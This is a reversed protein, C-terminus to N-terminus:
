PSKRFYSRVNSEHFSTGLCFCSCDAGTFIKPVGHNRRRFIHSLHLRKSLIRVRMVQEHLSIATALDLCSFTESEVVLLMLIDFGHSILICMGYVLANEDFFDVSKVLINVLM